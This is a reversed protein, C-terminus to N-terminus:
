LKPLYGSRALIEALHWDEATDIDLSRLAPMEYPLIPKAELISSLHLTDAIRIWYIAGNLTYQNNMTQRQLATLEPILLTGNEVKTFSNYGAYDKAKRVSVVAQINANLLKYSNFIDEILRFPSTPQLLLLYEPTHTPMQSISHRIVEMMPM